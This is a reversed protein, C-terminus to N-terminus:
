YIVASHYSYGNIKRQIHKKKQRELLKFVVLCCCVFHIVLTLNVSIKM